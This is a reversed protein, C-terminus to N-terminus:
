RRLRHDISPPPFKLGEKRAYNQAAGSAAGASKVNIKAAIDIWAEGQLRLNYAQKNTNM